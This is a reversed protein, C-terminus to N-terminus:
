LPLRDQRPEQKQPLLPVGAHRHPLDLSRNEGHQGACVLQLLNCVLQLLNCVLQLLNCVLRLLNVASGPMFPAVCHHVEQQAKVEM